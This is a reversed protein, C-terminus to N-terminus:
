DGTVRIIVTGRDLDDGPAYTAIVSDFAELYPRADAEYRTRDEASLHSEVLGRLGVVDVWALASHGAGAQALAASFRETQALSAGSRADLVGKTFDTGYGLVVVQDTAAYSITADAPLDQGFGTMGGLNGLHVVTITTDAYAEETVTIGAQGGALGLLGRIKTLLQSAAEPDTPTIVVGGGVTDGDRTIAIGGEGMWGVVADWGGVVSLGQDLQKLGEAIEPEKTATDRARTLAEGLDHGEALMITTPPVVSALTTTSTKAPGMAEVHPSRTEIVFSGDQARVASVAWPIALNELADGLQPMASAAPGALAVVGDAFGQVDVYSFALRDGSVSSEATQFQAVTNLGKTGGTDIAAKVSALDGVALVPGVVAYAAEKMGHDGGDDASAAPTVVTITTGGYSETATGAGTDAVVSAAWAQAKAGDTVSALVLGRARSADRTEPLPGVSVALQRGFWPDIDSWSQKGDSARGVLQDMVENVKTPFAAQDDFGPFASMVKALEAQQTGPLDLRLEGYALSDAPTWALVDPDGSDGTLLATAAAAIGGVVLVLVAVALWRLKGAGGRSAGATVPTTSVPDADAPLGTPSPAAATPPADPAAPPAFTPPEYRQTPDQDAM